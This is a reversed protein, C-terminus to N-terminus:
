IAKLALEKTRILMNLYTNLEKAKLERGHSVLIRADENFMGALLTLSKELSSIDGEPQVLPFSDSFVLDGLFAINAKKFQVIIDTDTHGPLYKLVIEENNFWITLSDQFTIDPLGEAAFQTNTALRSFSERHAIICADQGLLANGDTHDGNFHTNIIYVIKKDTIKKLEERILDTSFSYGTDILLIGSTGVLAFVNVSNSNDIHIFLEYLNEAVKTTRITPQSTQAVSLNGAALLIVILKLFTKM